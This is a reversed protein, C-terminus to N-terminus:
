PVSAIPVGGIEYLTMTSVPEESRQSTDGLMQEPMTDFIVQETLELIVYEGM